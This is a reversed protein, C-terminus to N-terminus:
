NVAAQSFSSPHLMPGPYSHHTDVDMRGSPVAEQPPLLHLKAPKNSLQLSTSLCQKQPPFAWDSIHSMWAGSPTMSSDLVPDPVQPSPFADLGPGPSLSSLEPKALCHNDKTQTDPLVSLGEVPSNLQPQTPLAKEMARWPPVQYFLCSM